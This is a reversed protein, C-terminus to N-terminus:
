VIKGNTLKTIIYNFEESVNRKSLESSNPPDDLEPSIIHDELKVDGESRKEDTFQFTSGSELLHFPDEVEEIEEKVAITHVELGTTFGFM